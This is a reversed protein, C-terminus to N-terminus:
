DYWSSSGLSELFGSETWDLRHQHSKGTERKEKGLKITVNLHNDSTSLVIVLVM